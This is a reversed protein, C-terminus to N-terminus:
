NVNKNTESNVQKNIDLTDIEVLGSYKKIDFSSKWTCVCNLVVM